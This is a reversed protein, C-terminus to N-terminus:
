IIPDNPGGLEAAKAATIIENPLWRFKFENDLFAGGTVNQGLHFDGGWLPEPCDTPDIITTGHNKVGDIYLHLEAGDYVGIFRHPDNDALTNGVSRDTGDRKDYYLQYTGGPARRFQWVASGVIDECHVQFFSRFQNDNHAWGDIIFSWPQGSQPVNGTVDVWTFDAPRNVAAAETKIYPVGDRSATVQFMTVQVDAGGPELTDFRVNIGTNDAIWDVMNLEFKQWQQTLTFTENQNETGSLGLVRIKQDTSTNSKGWFSITCVATNGVTFVGSLFQELRDPFIGPLNLNWVRGDAEAWPSLASPLNTVTASNSKTWVANSLDESYLCRNTLSGYVGMAGKNFAPVDAPVQYVHNSNSVSTSPGSRQTEMDGFFVRNNAAIFPNLGRRYTDGTLQSEIGHLYNESYLELNEGNKQKFLSEGDGVSSMTNVEGNVTAQPDIYLNTGTIPYSTVNTTVNAWLKAERIFITCGVRLSAADAQAAVYTPYIGDNKNRSIGTNAM